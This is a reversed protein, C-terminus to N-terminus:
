AHANYALTHPDGSAQPNVPVPLSRGWGSSYSDGHVDGTHSHSHHPHTVVEYTVHKQQSFLKKLGIVTALLFALKSILLAKGVLLALAKFAIVGVMGIKMMGAALLPGMNKMKGRGTEQLARGARISMGFNLTGEQDPTASVVLDADPLVNWKLSRSRVFSWIKEAVLQGMLDDESIDNDDGKFGRALPTEQPELIPSTQSIVISDTLKLDSKKLLRNMYTILKLMVCSTTDRQSCKINLKQLLTDETPAQLENDVTRSSSYKDESMKELPSGRGGAVLVVVVLVLARRM